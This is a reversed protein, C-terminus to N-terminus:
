HTKLFGEPDAMAYYALKTHLNADFILCLTDARWSRADQVGWFSVREIYDSYRKFIEFLRAYHLAQRLEDEHSLTGGRQYGPVGVDLETISIKAGTAAYAQIANEVNQFHTDTGVTDHQQLGIGEILLRGGSNLYERVSSFKGGEPNSESQAWRLNVANVMYVVLRAKEPEEMNYDNYYLISSPDAKRAFYFSDYVYDWPNGGAPAQNEYARYWPSDWTSPWIAGLTHYGWNEENAPHAPNRRVAENIVDWSHIRLGDPHNYFHGAVTNIYVELNDRAQSYTKYVATGDNRAGAALNLWNPSQAHWLLTHGIIKFGDRSLIKLWNDVESLRASPVPPREYSGRTDRWITEPKMDNEFTLANYHHKLVDYFEQERANVALNSPNVINGILFYGEYIDKLPKVELAYEGKVPQAEAYIISEAVLSLTGGNNEFFSRTGQFDETFVAEGSEADTVMFDDIFFVAPQNDYVGGDGLKAFVLAPLGTVNPINESLDLRGSMEYWGAPQLLDAGAATVFRWNWGNDTNAQFIIGVKGEKVTPTYVRFSFDYTKGMELKLNEGSIRIGQWQNEGTVVQMVKNEGAATIGVTGTDETNENPSKTRNCATFVTLVGILLIACIDAALFKEKM